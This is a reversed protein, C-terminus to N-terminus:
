AVKTRKFFRRFALLGSMSIGLLAVSTPEPVASQSINVTLSPSVFTTTPSVGYTGLGVMGSSTTEYTWSVSAGASQPTNFTFIVTNGSTMFTGAPGKTQTLDNFTSVSYSVSIDDVETGSVVVGGFQANTTIILSGAQSPTAFAMSALLGAVVTLFFSRKTM